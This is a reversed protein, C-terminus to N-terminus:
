PRSFYEDAVRKPVCMCWAEVILERMEAEDLKALWTRVWNYREDSPIPMRFKEPEAQILGAREEKPFAFGMSTEDASISAYVIRGVRFRTRERIMRVETRPLQEAVKRVDDATVM